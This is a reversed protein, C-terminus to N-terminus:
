GKDKFYSEWRSADRPMDARMFEWDAAELYPPVLPNRARLFGDLAMYARNAEQGALRWQPGLSYLDRTLKEFFAVAQCLESDTAAMMSEGSVWLEYVKRSNNM